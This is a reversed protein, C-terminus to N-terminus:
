YEYNLLVFMIFAYVFQVMQSLRETVPDPVREILWFNVGQLTFCVVHMMQLNQCLMVYGKEKQLYFQENTQPFSVLVVIYTLIMTFHISINYYILKWGGIPDRM